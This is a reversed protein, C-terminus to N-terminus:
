RSEKGRASARNTAAIIEMLRGATMGESEPLTEEAGCAGLLSLANALHKESETRKGQQLALNGLAFHALAFNEDLYLARKLSSVAGELLGREQLITARLYHLGADLKDAAIAKECWALAESLNGQNAYVRALLAVAAVEARDHSCIEILREAAEAYRGQESLALAELYGDSAVDEAPSERQGLDRGLPQHGNGASLFPGSLGQTFTVTELKPEFADALPADGTTQAPLSCAPTQPGQIDKRYFIAGPFNVAVFQPFLVHSTESPSVILWGGDLLSHHLNQIVKRARERAFYMLVNRCFILDMATTNNLPSPYSDEALNLYALSVMRKVSPLIEFHGDATRSFYKEKVWSPTNRFSWERYIGAGAKQRWRPNIDTALITIEWDELDPLIRSLLIALSYPEEGTSCGASWIRLRQRAGRRSRILAPLTQEALIELSEPDRFFYTEGVTLHGALLEIQRYDLPASLLWEACSRADHFGFERAASAIGQALDSFREIPFELGMRAAISESLQALLHDSIRHNM